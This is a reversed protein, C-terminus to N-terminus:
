GAPVPEFLERVRELSRLKEKSETVNNTVMLEDAATTGLLEALRRRVTDPGGVAQEALLTAAYAREKEPWDFAAADEPSPLPDHRALGGIQLASAVAPAALRAAHEDDEGCVTHVTLVAYPAGLLASPRFASRYAHLAEAAGRAGFFHQAFAYPLGREAALVASGVSSGLVWIEAPVSPVPMATLRAYPHEEPFTGTVFRVLDSLDDGFADADASGRRLATGVAPGTASARGVGLDVRGPFLAGLTGFSEAVVLPAHNPLMVGGSGIRIRETTSGLAALLVAPSASAVGPTDHHEGVWFRRFDLEDARRALEKVTTLSRTATRGREVPAIDLVSLPIRPLQPPLPRSM